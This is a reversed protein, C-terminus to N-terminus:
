RVSYFVTSKGKSNSKIGLKIARKGSGIRFLCSEGQRRGVTQDAREIRVWGFFGYGEKPLGKFTSLALGSGPEGTMVFLEKPVTTGLMTILSDLISLLYKPTSITKVQGLFEKLSEGKMNTCALDTILALLEPMLASSNQYRKLLKILLHYM